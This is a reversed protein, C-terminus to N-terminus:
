SDGLAGCTERLVLETPLIVRYPPTIKGSILDVLTRVAFSGLEYIPQRMTSLAPKNTSAIPLDDFGIVAVDRPVSLGQESLAQLAGVAM